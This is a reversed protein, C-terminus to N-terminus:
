HEKCTSRPVLAPDLYMEITNPCRPNALLLTDTCITVKVQTELEGDDGFPGTVPVASATGEHAAVASQMFRQWIRAPFSGGTVRIGHVNTMSVQGEPHGVWVATCLDAGYGVFWADRYAQTTGTKGAAWIGIKAAQGTGNEIVDHLMAGATKAVAADVARKDAHDPEYVVNGADDTVKLIGSPAHAVGGSAITGYASAMELPSVGTKLGGLAIAPNPELPTTIGMAQATKVVNAAGVKMILRAYVANVSWNTAAALSMSGSTVANEYNQVNWVGDTVEVSYPAASFVDTPRVGQSLATVLVFPKFASGPQRKGQVALNFKDTKFDKGGVMALVQGNTYDVCVLSVAPDGKASLFARASEEAAKQLAPVLTTQVRLGGQFVMESGLKDILDQKVYEM